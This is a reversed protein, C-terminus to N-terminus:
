IHFRKLNEFVKIRVIKGDNDAGDRGVMGGKDQFLICWTELFIVRRKVCISPAKKSAGDGVSKGREFRIESKIGVRVGVFKELKDVADCKVM